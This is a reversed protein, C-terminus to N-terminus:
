GGTRIDIRKWIRGCSELSCQIRDIRTTAEIRTELLVGGLASQRDCFCPGVRASAKAIAEGASDKMMQDPFIPKLHDVDRRRTVGSLLQREGQM